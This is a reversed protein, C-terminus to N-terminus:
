RAARAMAPGLLSFDSLFGLPGAAQRQTRQPRPRPGVPAPHLRVELAHSRTMPRPQVVLTQYFIVAMFGIWAALKSVLMLTGRAGSAVLLLCAVFAISALGNIVSSRILATREEDDIAGKLQKRLGLWIGAFAAVM